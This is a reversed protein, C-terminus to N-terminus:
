LMPLITVVFGIFVLLHTATKVNQLTFGAPSGETILHFKDLTGLLMGSFLLATGAEVPGVRFFAYISIVVIFVLFVKVQSPKFHIGM